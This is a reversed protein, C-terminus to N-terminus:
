VFYIHQKKPNRIVYLFEVERRFKNKLYQLKFFQDSNFFESQDLPKQVMLCSGSKEWDHLKWLM